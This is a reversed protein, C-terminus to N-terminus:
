TAEWVKQRRGRGSVSARREGTDRVQGLEELESFRPAAAEVSVQCFNAAERTTMPGREVLHKLILQRLGKAWAERKLFKRGHALGLAYAKEPTATALRENIGRLEGDSIKV